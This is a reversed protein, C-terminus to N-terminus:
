KSQAQRCYVCGAQRGAGWMTMPKHGPPRNGYCTEVCRTTAILLRCTTVFSPSLPLIIFLAFDRKSLAPREALFTIRLPRTKRLRSLRFATPNEAAFKEIAHCTM